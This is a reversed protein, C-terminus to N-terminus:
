FSRRFSGASIRTQWTFPAALNGSRTLTGPSERHQSRRRRRPLGTAQAPYWRRTKRRHLMSYPPRQPLEEWRCRSWSRVPFGGNDTMLRMSVDNTENLISSFPVDLSNFTWPYAGAPVTFQGAMEIIGGTTNAWVLSGGPLFTDNPGFNSFIEDAQGNSRLTVLAFVITLVFVVHAVAFPAVGRIFPKTQRNALIAVTQSHYM